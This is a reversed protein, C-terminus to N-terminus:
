RNTQFQVYAEYTTYFSYDWEYEIEFRRMPLRGLGIDLMFNVAELETKFLFNKKPTAVEYVIM